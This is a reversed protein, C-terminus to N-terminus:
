NARLVKSQFINRALFLVHGVEASNMEKHLFIKKHITSSPPVFATQPPTFIRVFGVSYSRSEGFPLRRQARERKSSGVTVVLLNRATVSIIINSEDCFCHLTCWKAEDAM